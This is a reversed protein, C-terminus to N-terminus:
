RWRCQMANKEPESYSKGADVPLVDVHQLGATDYEALHFLHQEAYGGGLRDSFQRLVCLAYEQHDAARQVPLRVLDLLHATCEAIATDAREIAHRWVRWPAGDNGGGLLGPRKASIENDRSALERGNGADGVLPALYLFQDAMGADDRAGHNEGRGDSHVRRLPQEQGRANARHVVTDLADARVLCIGVSIRLGQAPQRQQCASQRPHLRM